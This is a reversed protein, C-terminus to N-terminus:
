HTAGLDSGGVCKGIKEGLESAKWLPVILPIKSAEQESCYDTLKGVHNSCNDETVEFCRRLIKEETSCLGSILLPRFWLMFLPRPVQAEAKEVLGLSIVVVCWFLLFARKSDAVSFSINKKTIRM